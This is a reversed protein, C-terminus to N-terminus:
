PGASSPAVASLKAHLDTLNAVVAEVDAAAVANPAAAQLTQILTVAAMVDVAIAAEAAKLDDLAAMQKVGQSILIELYPIILRTQNAHVSALQQRDTASFV